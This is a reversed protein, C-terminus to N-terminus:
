VAVYRGEGRENMVRHIEDCHVLSPEHNWMAKLQPTTLARFWDLLEPYQLDPVTPILQVVNDQEDMPRAYAAFEDIRDQIAQRHHEDECISLYFNLVPLARWDRARFIIVPEDDPIAEGSVRNVFRGDEFKFKRDEM